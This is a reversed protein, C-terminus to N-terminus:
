LRAIGHYGVMLCTCLFVVVMCGKYAVDLAAKRKNHAKMCRNIQKLRLAQRTEFDRLM